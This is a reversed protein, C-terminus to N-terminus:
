SPGKYISLYHAKCSDIFIIWLFHKFLLSIFGNEQPGTPRSEFVGSPGWVGSQSGEPGVLM